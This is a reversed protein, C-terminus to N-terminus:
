WRASCSWDGAYLVFDAPHGRHECRPQRANIADFERGMRDEENFAQIVRMASIDEALRGVMISNKERTKRYAKRAFRSFIVTVLVMVPLVSLSLLALQWNMVLM